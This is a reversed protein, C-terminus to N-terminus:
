MALVISLCFFITSMDQVINHCLFKFNSGLATIYNCFGDGKFLFSSSVEIRICYVNEDYSGFVVATNELCFRPGSVISNATSFKWKEQKEMFDICYMNGDFCGVFVLNNKECVLATIQIIDPLFLKLVEDGNEDLIVFM